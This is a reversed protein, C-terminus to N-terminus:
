MLVSFYQEQQVEMNQKKKKLQCKALTRKVPTSVQTIRVSVLQVLNHPQQAMKTLFPTHNRCAQLLQDPNIILSSDKHKKCTKYKGIIGLTRPKQLIEVNQNLWFNFERDDYRQSYNADGIAHSFYKQVSYVRFHVRM